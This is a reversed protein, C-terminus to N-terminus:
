AVPHQTIHREAGENRSNAEHGSLHQGAQERDNAVRERQGSQEPHKPQRRQVRRQRDHGHCEDALVDDAALPQKAAVLGLHDRINQHQGGYPEDKGAFLQGNGSKQERGRCVEVKQDAPEPTRAAIASRSRSLGRSKRRTADAVASYAIKTIGSSPTM